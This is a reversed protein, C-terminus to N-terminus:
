SVTVDVTWYVDEDRITSRLNKFRWTTNRGITIEKEFGKMGSSGLLKQADAIQTGRKVRINMMLPSTFEFDANEAYTQATSRSTTTSSITPNKYTGNSIRAIDAETVPLGKYVIMDSNAPSFVSDIDRAAKENIQTSTGTMSNYGLMEHIEASEGEVFRRYLELGNERDPAESSRGGGGRRSRSHSRGGGM